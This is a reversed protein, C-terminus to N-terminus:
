MCWEGGSSYEWKYEDYCREYGWGGVWRYKYWALWCKVAAGTPLTGVRTPVFAFRHHWAHPEKSVILM